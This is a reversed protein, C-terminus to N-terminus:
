KDLAGGSLDVRDSLFIITVDGVENRPGRPM